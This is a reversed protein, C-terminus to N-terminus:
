GMVRPGAMLQPRPGPIGLMGRQGPTIAQARQMGAMAESQSLGESVEPTVPALSRLAALVAKAEPGNMDGKLSGLIDVLSKVVTGLKVRAGAIVGEQAPATLPSPGTPPTAPALGMGDMM